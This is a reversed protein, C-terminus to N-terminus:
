PYRRWLTQSDEFTEWDRDIQAQLQNTFIALINRFVEVETSTMDEEADALAQEYDDKDFGKFIALGKPPAVGLKELQHQFLGIAVRVMMLAREVACFGVGDLDEEVSPMSNGHIFEYNKLMVKNGAYNNPYYEMRFTEGENLLLTTPDFSWMTAPRGRDDVGIEAAFGLNTSYYSTSLRSIFDRWGKESNVSHLARATKKVKSASGTLMWSRNIDRQVVNALVGAILPESRSFMLLDMGRRRADHSYPALTVDFESIVHYMNQLLLKRNEDKKYQSQISTAM